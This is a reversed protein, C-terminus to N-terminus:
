KHSTTLATFRVDPDDNEINQRVYTGNLINEVIIANHETEVLVFNLRQETAKNLATQNGRGECYFALYVGLFTVIIASTTDHRKLWDSSWRWCLKVVDWVCTLVKKMARKKKAM